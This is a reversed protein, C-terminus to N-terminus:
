IFDPSPHAVPAAFGPVNLAFAPRGSPLISKPSADQGDTEQLSDNPYTRCRGNRGDLRGVLITNM